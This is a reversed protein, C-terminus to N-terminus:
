SRTLRLYGKLAVDLLVLISVRIGSWCQRWHLYKWLLMWSFLSQFRTLFNGLDEFFMKWLLMWSFLSQFVRARYMGRDSCAKWLLMWSFLSQFRNWWIWVTCCGCKWLLMWSFLSQFMNVRPMHAVVPSGKWLLMWSFLSQFLEFRHLLLKSCSVKLAVDLLVLISVVQIPARARRRKTKWLLMWSFLSQFVNGGNLSELWKMKWLLM